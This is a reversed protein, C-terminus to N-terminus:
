IQIYRLCVHVLSTKNISLWDQFFKDVWLIVVQYKQCDEQFIYTLQMFLDTAFTVTENMFVAVTSYM